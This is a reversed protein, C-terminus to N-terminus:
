HLMNPKQHFQMFHIYVYMAGLPRNIKINKFRIINCKYTFTDFSVEKELMGLYSKVSQM